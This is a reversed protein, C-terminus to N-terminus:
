KRAGKENKSSKSDIIKKILEGKFKFFNKDFLNNNLFLAVM